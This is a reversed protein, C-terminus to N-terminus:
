QHSFDCTTPISRLWDIAAFGVDCKGYRGAITGVMIVIMAALILRFGWDM